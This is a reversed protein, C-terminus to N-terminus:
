DFQAGKDHHDRWSAGVLNSGPDGVRTSSTSYAAYSTTPVAYLAVGALSALAIAAVMGAILPKLACREHNRCPQPCCADHRSSAAWPEADVRVRERAPRMM